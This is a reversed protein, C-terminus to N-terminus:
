SPESLSSGALHDLLGALALALSAGADILVVRRLQANQDGVLLAIAVFSLMSVLGAVLGVPRLPPHLAAAALLGGVVLFLVARHRLLIELNPDQVLVGYLAEIRSTSLAGVAPLLNALAVLAYLASSIARM